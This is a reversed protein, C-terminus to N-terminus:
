RGHIRLNSRFGMRATTANIFEVYTPFLVQRVERQEHLGKLLWEDVEVLSFIETMRSTQTGIKTASVGSCRERRLLAATLGAMEDLAAELIITLKM